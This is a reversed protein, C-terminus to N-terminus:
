ISSSQFQKLSDCELITVTSGDITVDTITIRKAIGINVCDLLEWSKGVIKSSESNNVFLDNSRNLVKEDSICIPSESMTQPAPILEFTTRNMLNKAFTQRGM